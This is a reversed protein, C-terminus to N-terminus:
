NPNIIEISNGTLHVSLPYQYKPTDGIIPDCADDIGDSDIDNGSLEIPGCEGAATQTGDPSVYIIEYIVISQGAINQGSLMITHYGSTLSAPLSIQTNVNGTADSAVTALNTTSDSLVHYSSNPKLGNAAGDATFAILANQTTVKPVLNSNSTVIDPVPNGSPTPDTLLAQAQPDSPAPPVISTDAGPMPQTLNDTLSLIKQALLQHGLVNPHYSESGIVKIGLAVNVDNGATLGNVAVASSKAECMRNGDFAGKTDVYRAGASDAAKEITSDLYGIVAQAFVIEQSNLHVNDACNGLTVIQPYGIVYLRVGPDAQLIARYTDQLRQYIGDINQIVRMVDDYKSYCTQGNTPLHVFSVCSTLMDTFDIDNGGISLTIVSPQYTKVFTLQTRYGPWFNSLIDNDYSSDARGKSQPHTHNYDQYGIGTIDATVAGSCAVSNYQNFLGAGMSFPYSLPSLHCTNTATDTGDKYVFEGQGSIYSDGMALYDLGHASKGPATLRYTAADFTNTGRSQWDYSLTLNLNDDNVFRVSYVAHFKNISGALSPWYDRMECTQQKSYDNPVTGTCTSLDYVDLYGYDDSGISAYRGDDSIATVGYRNSYDNPDNQLTQAFPTVEFTALNVRLFGRGYADVLMWSGNSSYAITNPNFNIATGNKDRLMFDPPANVSFSQLSNLANYQPTVHQYVDTYFHAYMGLVSSSTLSLTMGQNPIPQLLFNGNQYGNMTIGMSTNNFLIPSGDKQM